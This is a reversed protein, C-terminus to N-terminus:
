QRSRFAQGSILPLCFGFKLQTFLLRVTWSIYIAVREVAHEHM